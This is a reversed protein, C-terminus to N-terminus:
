GFVTTHNLCFCDYMDVSLVGYVSFMSCGDRHFMEGMDCSWVPPMSHVSSAVARFKLPDFNVILPEGVLDLLLRKLDLLFREVQSFM